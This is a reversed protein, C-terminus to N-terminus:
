LFCRVVIFILVLFLIGGYLLFTGRRVEKMFQEPNDLFEIVLVYLDDLCDPHCHTVYKNDAYYELSDDSARIEYQGKKVILYEDKNDYQSEYGAKMRLAESVSDMTEM